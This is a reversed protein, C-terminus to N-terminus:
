AIRARLKAAAVRGAVGTRSRRSEPGLWRASRCNGDRLLLGLHFQCGSECVSSGVDVAMRIRRAVCRKCATTGLDLLVTGRQRRRAVTKPGPAISRNRRQLNGNQRECVDPAPSIGSLRRQPSSGSNEFLIRFAALLRAAPSA